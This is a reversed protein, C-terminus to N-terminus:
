QGNNIAAAQQNDQPNAQANAQNGSATGAQNGAAEGAQNGAAANAQSNEAANEQNNNTKKSKKSKESKKDKKAVKNKISKLTYEGDTNYHKMNLIGEQKFATKHMDNLTVLKKDLNTQSGLDVRLRNIYISTENKENVRIKRVNFDYKAVALYTKSVAEINDAKSLKIKKYLQKSVVEMGVIEPYKLKETSQKMVIGDSDIYYYIGNEEVYGILKREQANIGIQNLSVLNVDYKEFMQLKKNGFLMDKVVFGLTSGIKKYKFYAQVEEANYQNLDSTYNIKEVKFVAFLFVVILSVVCLSVGIRFKLSYLFDMSSTTNKKEKMTEEM